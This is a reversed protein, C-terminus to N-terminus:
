SLRWLRRPFQTGVAQCGNERIKMVFLLQHAQHDTDIHDILSSKATFTLSIGTKSREMLIGQQRRRPLRITESRGNTAKRPREPSLLRKKAPASIRAPARMAKRLITNLSAIGM